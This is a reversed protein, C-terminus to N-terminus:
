RPVHTVGLNVRSAVDIVLPGQTTDLTRRSFREIWSPVQFLGFGEFYPFHGILQAPVVVQGAADAVRCAIIATAPLGHWGLQLVVEVEADSGDPTWTITADNGDVLEVLGVGPIGLDSVGDLTATFAAIDAGAATVTIDAGPTFLDGGGLDPAFQYGFEGPTGTVDQTLGTITLAGASVPRAAPRCQSDADCIEDVGCAPECTGIARQWVKCAGGAGVQRYLTPDPRDGFDAYLYSGVVEGAGGSYVEIIELTGAARMRDDLPGSPGDGTATDVAADATDIDPGGDPSTDTTDTTDSTDSTDIDPGICSGPQGGTWVPCGNDDVGRTWGVPIADCLNHCGDVVSGGVAFCDCTPTEAIPCCVATTDGDTDDDVDPAVEADPDADTDNGNNNNDDGCAALALALASLIIPKM